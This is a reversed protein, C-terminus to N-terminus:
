NKKKLLIAPVIGGNTYIVLDEKIKGSEGNIYYMDTDSNEYKTRLFWDSSDIGYVGQYMAYDTPKSLRNNIYGLYKEVDNKDILFVNDKIKSINTNDISNTNDIITKKDSVSFAWNYFKKNLWYRIYSNSYDNSPIGKYDNVTNNIPQSDLVKDSLLFQVNDDEKIVKWQIKEYKFWYIKNIEMKKNLYSKEFTTLFPRLKLSVIARYKENSSIVDKYLFYDSIKGNYFYELSDWGNLSDYSPKDPILQNLKSILIPDEIETQPYTGFEIMKFNKNHDDIGSLIRDYFVKDINQRLNHVNNNFNQYFNRTDKELIGQITFLKELNNLDTKSFKCGNLNIFIFKLGKQRRALEAFYIEKATACNENLKGNKDIFGATFNKTIFVIFYKVEFILDKLMKDDLYNGNPEFDSYWIGGFNRDENIDNTIEDAYLKFNKAFLAGSDRYCLFINYRKNM